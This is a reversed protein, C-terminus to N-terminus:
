IKRFSTKEMWGKSGDAIQVECWAGVERILKVKTGAHLIFLDQGASDPTSKVAVSADFVIAHKLSFAPNLLLHCQLM